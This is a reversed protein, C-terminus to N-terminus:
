PIAKRFRLIYFHMQDKSRITLINLTMYRLCLHGNSWTWLESRSPIRHRPQYWIKTAKEFAKTWYWNNRTMKFWVKEELSFIWTSSRSHWCSYQRGFHGSYRKFSSFLCSSSVVFSTAVKMTSLTDYGIPSNCYWVMLNSCFSNESSDSHFICFDDSNLLFVLCDKNVM